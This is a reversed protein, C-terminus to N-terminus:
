GAAGAGGRHRSFRSVVEDVGRRLVGMDSAVAVFTFGWAIYRRADDEALALIGAPKGLERCRRCAEEIAEQVEAHGPNGLHGLDAALDSPGIFIGDVGDVAAISDIQTLASRTELQVLLCLEQHVRQHSRFLTSYPFLTDTRTSRPPRRIM